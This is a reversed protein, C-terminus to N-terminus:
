TQSPAAHRWERPRDEDTDQRRAAMDRGRHGHDVLQDARAARDVHDGPPAVPVLENGGASRHGQEFGAGVEVVGVEVRREGCTATEATETEGPV